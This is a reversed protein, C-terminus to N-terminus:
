NEKKSEKQLSGFQFFITPSKEEKSRESNRRELHLPSM